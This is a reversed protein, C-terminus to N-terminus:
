QVRSLVGHEVHFMEAGRDVLSPLQDAALATFITQQQLGLLAEVMQDRHGEDLESALDDVLVLCDEGGSATLEHVQALLLLYGLVKCQGRSFIDRVLGGQSLLRLEARHAGRGTFGRRQDRDLEARLTNLLEDESEGPWGSQLAVSVPPLGPFSGLLAELHPRLRELYANRLANIRGSAAAVQQTWAELERWSGGGQRLLANRNELAHRLDRWYGHFSQEVHFLGWDLYGRRVASPGEVLELTGPHFIRVPLLWAIESFGQVTRGDRRLRTFGSGGRAVGLRHVDGSRRVVEAFIVAEGADERILRRPRGGRFSKGSSLLYIAELLSSKGSGNAGTVLSLSPSPLFEQSRYNRFSELALRRLM